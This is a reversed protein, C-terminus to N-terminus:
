SGDAGEPHRRVEPSLDLQERLQTQASQAEEKTEFQGVLLLHTSETPSPVAEIAWSRDIEDRLEKRREDAADATSVSQVLVTWSKADDASSQVSAPAPLPDATGEEESGQMPEQPSPATERDSRAEDSPASKEQERREGAGDSATDSADAVQPGGELSLSDPHMSEKEVLTLLSAARDQHPTNAYQETLHRLLTKLPARADSSSSAMTTDPAMSDTQVPTSGTADTTITDARGSDPRVAAQPRREKQKYRATDARASDLAATVISDSTVASDALTNKGGIELAGEFHSASDVPPFRRSSPPPGTEQVARLYGSVEKELGSAADAQLRRWYILGSALLARPATKTDPYRRAVDLFTELAIRWEDQQWQRYARTYASDARVSRNEDLPDTPRNLRQRARAALDSDPYQEVLRQYEKRAASTDGQAWRAEALAYLARRAVPQDENEELVRQYWIAASDPRGAALFLSNGLEYRSVARKAEMEQQSSSDRPINSLGLDVEERTNEENPQAEEAVAEADEGGSEARSMANRRRWNDVRPRDGWTQVFRNRGQQVRSPEKYFLFGADSGRTDLATQQSQQEVVSTEGRAQLRRADSSPEARQAQEAQQQQRQEEVFDIYASESLRGIRLLSDLRAVEEARDALDRYQKAQSRVNAPATPLRKGIDQTRGVEEDINTSATDFHAAARSFDEYADRYLTALDYHARGTARQPLSQERDNNDYLTNRLVARARDTKGLAQYIRAEVLAMEGWSDLNKDDTQLDELRELAVSADGHLGQLEVESLEAAFEVEYSPNYEQARRYAAQAKGPAGITEYVQGLLFSARGGARDPVSGDLGQELSSAADAWQGQRVLLEGKVLYIRAAWDDDVENSNLGREVEEAAAEYQESAVLTRALWFHAEAKRGEDLALVERFKQTAGVYDQQYFYSKGILLLADDTWKSNPHERLVDSGRQIAKEFSSEDDVSTPVPFVFLYRTRDVTPDRNRFADQGKEFAQDAIYLTNYYATFDDYQRGVFSGRGCGSLLLVCLGAWFGLQWSPPCVRSTVRSRGM